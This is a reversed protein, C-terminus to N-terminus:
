LAHRHVGRNDLRRGTARTRPASTALRDDLAAFREEITAGDPNGLIDTQAVDVVLDAVLLGYASTLGPFPPVLVRRIGLAEALRCAHLPGAGGYPVLTYGAPDIGRETSVLRIAQTMNADVVRM